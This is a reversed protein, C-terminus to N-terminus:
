RVRVPKGNHKTWVQGNAFTTEHGEELKAAAAPPLAEAAKIPEKSKSKVGGSHLEEQYRDRLNNSQDRLTDAKEHALKVMSDMQEPTLVVGKLLGDEGFRAEFRGLWPASQEAENLITQSIRAGKQAGLTMGIHNTLLSIMAQQDGKKAEELNQDMVNMRTVAADYDEDAKSVEKKATTYDAKKLANNFANEQVKLQQTFHREEKDRAEKMEKEHAETASAMLKQAEPNAKVEDPTLEAGTENDIIMPEGSPGRKTSYGSKAGPKKGTNTALVKGHEDVLEAGPAVAHLQAKPFDGHQSYYALEEESKGPFQQRLAALQQEQAAQAYAAKDQPTLLHLGGSSIPVPPQPNVLRAQPTAPLSLSSTPAAAQIAAQTEMEPSVPPGMPAKLAGLANVPGGAQRGVEQSAGGAGVNPGPAGAPPQPIGQGAGPGQPPQLTMAPLTPQFSREPRQVSVPPLENLDIKPLKKSPDAQILEQIKGLAWQQHEPPVNPNAALHGMYQIMQDRQTLAHDLKEKAQRGTEQTYGGVLGALLSMTSPSGM